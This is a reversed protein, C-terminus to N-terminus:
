RPMIVNYFYYGPTATAVGSVNSAHICAAPQGHLIGATDEIDFSGMAAIDGGWFGVVNFTNSDEPPELRERKIANNLARCVEVKVYPMIIMLDKSDENGTGVDDTGVGPVQHSLNYYYERMNASQGSPIDQAEALPVQYSVAGGRTHFVHCSFDNPSNPNQYQPNSGDFPAQEFNIQDLRCGRSILRNIGTYVSVSYNLIQSAVLRANEESTSGSGSRTSNVVVFSLAAFM